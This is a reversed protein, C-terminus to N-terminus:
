LKYFLRFQLVSVEFYEGNLAKAGEVLLLEYALRKSSPNFRLGALGNLALKYERFYPTKGSEYGDTLNGLVGVGFIVAFSKIKLADAVFNFKLNRTTYYVDPADEVSVGFIGISISPEIRFRNNFIDQQYGVVLTGFGIQDKISFSALSTGIFM